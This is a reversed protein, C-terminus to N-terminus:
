VCRSTYLLCDMDLNIDDKEVHMAYTRSDAKTETVEVEPKIAVGNIAVEDLETENGRFYTDTIEQGNALMQYRAVVPFEKGIYVKMEDSSISDYKSLDLPAKLELTIDKVNDKKDEITVEGSFAQYGPKSVAM